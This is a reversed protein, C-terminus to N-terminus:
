AGLLAGSLNQNLNLYKEGALSNDYILVIV